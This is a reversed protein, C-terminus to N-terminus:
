DDIRGITQGIGVGPVRHEIAGYRDAHADADSSVLHTILIVRPGAHDRIRDIEGATLRANVLVAWADLKSAAFVATVAAISNENIILLRDGGRLGADALTQAM